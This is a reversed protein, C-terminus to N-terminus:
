KRNTTTDDEEDEADDKERLAILAQLVRAREDNEQRSQLRRFLMVRLNEETELRYGQEIGAIQEEM